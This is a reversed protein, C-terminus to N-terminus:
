FSGTDHAIPELISFVVGIPMSVALKNLLPSSHHIYFGPVFVNFSGRTSEQKM